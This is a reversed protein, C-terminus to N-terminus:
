MTGCFEDFWEGESKPVPRAAGFDIVKVGLQEDIIVNEDKLDRHVYGAAHLHHVARVVQVFIHRAQPEAMRPNREIHEFLDQSLRRNSRSRSRGAAAPSLTPGHSAPTSVVATTPIPTHSVSCHSLQLLLPLNSASGHPSMPTVLSPCPIPESGVPHVSEMVFYFFTHDEYLDIFGVINPHNLRKLTFVEIPVVGLARDRKYGQPPIKDKFIFKVAVEQEDATRTASLVFATSGRGLPEGLAYRASFDEILRYGSGAGDAAEFFERCSPPIDHDDVTGPQSPSLPIPTPSPSPSPLCAAVEVGTMPTPSSGDSGFSSATSASSAEPSDDRDHDTRFHQLQPQSHTYHKQQGWAPSAAAVMPSLPAPPHTDVPSPIRFRNAQNNNMITLAQRPLHDDHAPKWHSFDMPSPAQCGPSPKGPM